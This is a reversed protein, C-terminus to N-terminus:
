KFEIPKGGFNHIIFILISLLGATILAYKIGGGISSFLLIVTGLCYIGTMIKEYKKLEYKVTEFKKIIRNGKLFYFWNIIIILIMGLKYSNEQISKFDFNIISLISILNMSFLISILISTSWEPISKNTRSLSSYIGLYLKEFINLNLKM